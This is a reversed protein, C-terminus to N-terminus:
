FREALQHGIKTEAPAVRLACPASHDLNDIRTQLGANGFKPGGAEVDHHGHFFLALRHGKDLVAGYRQRMKGIVGLPEIGDEGFVAGAAGHIRMSGFATKVYTRHQVEFQFLVDSRHAGDGLFCEGHHAFVLSRMGALVAITEHARFKVFGHEARADNSVEALDLM